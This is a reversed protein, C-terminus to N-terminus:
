ALDAVIDSIEIRPSRKRQRTPKPQCGLYEGIMRGYTPRSTDVFRTFEYDRARAIDQGVADTIPADFDQGREM